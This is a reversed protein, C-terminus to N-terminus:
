CCEILDGGMCECCCDSCILCECMQCASPDRRYGGQNGFSRYTNNRHTMNNLATRYEANAPDLQVARKIYQYAQDHWGRRLFIVGKLFHWEGNRNSIAELLQDAKMIDGRDILIRVEALNNGSSSHSNNTRTSRQNNYNSKGKGKILTHYAENIEKLKEEALDSLPNNSYQDPHYKKVLQKYARKIEEESAGERVGLVKYPNEM